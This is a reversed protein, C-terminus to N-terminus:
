AAEILLNLFILKKQTPVKNNAIIKSIKQKRGLTKNKKSNIKAIMDGRALPDRIKSLKQFKEKRPL